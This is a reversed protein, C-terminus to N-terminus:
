SGAPRAGRSPGSRRAAEASAYRQRRASLQASASRAATAAARASSCLAMSAREAASARAVSASASARAAQRERASAESAARAAESFAPHASLVVQACEVAGAEGVIEVAWGGREAEREILARIGSRMPPHDDVLVVRIPALM